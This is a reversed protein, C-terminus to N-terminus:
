VQSLNEWKAFASRVMAVLPLHLVEGLLHQDSSMYDYKMQERRAKLSMGYKIGQELQVSGLCAIAPATLGAKGLWGRREM